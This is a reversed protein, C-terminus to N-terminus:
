NLVAPIAPQFAPNAKTLDRYIGLAEGYDNEAEKMHQTNKFLNALNNLTAAVYFTYAEPNAIALDRYIGLAEKFDNKAEKIRQTEKYLNALDNLAAAVYPQYADPNTKALDRVTDASASLIPEARYYDNQDLLVNGYNLGADAVLKGSGHKYAAELHPLADVPRSQLELDLALNYEDAAYRDVQPKEREVLQKLIAEAKELEGAHLFDTAQRSLTDEDGAKSLQAELEKYKAAWDNAERIADSLQLNKRRLQENLRSLARPDVGICNVTVPAYNYAINPSCWSYSNQIIAPQPQAAAVAVSFLLAVGIM